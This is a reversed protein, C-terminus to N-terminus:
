SSGPESVILSAEQHAFECPLSMWISGMPFAKCALDRTEAGSLHLDPELVPVTNKVIEMLPHFPSVHFLRAFNFRSVLSSRSRMIRDLCNGSSKSM